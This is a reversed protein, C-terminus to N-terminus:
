KQDEIAFSAIIKEVDAESYQTRGNPMDNTSNVYDVFYEDKLTLGDTDDLLGLSISTNGEYLGTTLKFWIASGCKKCNAREAFSSSQITNINESGSLELRESDVSIGRFASGVWRQCTKCHCMSFHDPMDHATFTVAGCM